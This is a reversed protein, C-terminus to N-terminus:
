LFIVPYCNIIEEKNPKLICPYTVNEDMRQSVDTLGNLSLFFKVSNGKPLFLGNPCKRMAILQPGKLRGKMCVHFLSGQTTVWLVLERKWLVLGTRLALRLFVCEAILHSSRLHRELLPVWLCTGSGVEAKSPVAGLRRITRQNGTNRATKACCPNANIFCTIGRPQTVLM